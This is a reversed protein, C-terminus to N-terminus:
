AMSEREWVGLVRQTWPERFCVGKMLERQLNEVDWKSGFATDYTVVMKVRCREEAVLAALEDMLHRVTCTCQDARDLVIYTM